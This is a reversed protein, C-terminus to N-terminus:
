EVYQVRARACLPPHPDCPASPLVLWSDLGRSRTGCVIARFDDGAVNMFDLEWWDNEVLVSACAAGELCGHVYVLIM